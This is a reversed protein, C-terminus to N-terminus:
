SSRRGKVAHLHFDNDRDEGEDNVVDVFMNKVALQIRRRLKPVWVRRFM